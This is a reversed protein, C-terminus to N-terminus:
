ECLGLSRPGSVSHEPPLAMTAAVGVFASRDLGTESHELVQYLSKGKTAACCYVGDVVFKRKESVM